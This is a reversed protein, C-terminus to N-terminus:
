VPKFSDGAADTRAADDDDREREPQAVSAENELHLTQHNADVNIYRQLPADLLWRWQLCAPHHYTSVGRDAGEKSM